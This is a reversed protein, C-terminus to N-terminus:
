SAFLDRFSQMTLVEAATAAQESWVTRELMVLRDTASSNDIHLTPRPSLALEDVPWGEGVHITVDSQGRPTVMLLLGGPVDLTRLRYRGEELPLTMAAHAGPALLQQAVIHPTMQPGGVCYESIEIDRVAPNPRFTVEVLRNLNLRFDIQCSDCHVGPGFIRLTLIRTSFAV